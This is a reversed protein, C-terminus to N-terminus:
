KLVPTYTIVLTANTSAKVALGKTTILQLGTRSDSAAGQLAFNALTPLVNTVAAVANSYTWIGVFSNTQVGGLTNTYLATYNTTATVLNTYAGAVYTNTAGASDYFSLLNLGANTTVVSIGTIRVPTTFINNTIGVGTLVNTTFSAAKISGASLGLAVALVSIYKFLSKM